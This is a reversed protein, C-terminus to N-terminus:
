NHTPYNFGRRLKEFERGDHHAGVCAEMGILCPQMDPLSQELQTRSRKKRLGMAGTVDLGIVHFTNKGLDIGITVIKEHSM